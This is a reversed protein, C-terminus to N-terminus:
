KSLLASFHGILLLLQEDGQSMRHQKNSYMLVKFRQWFGM